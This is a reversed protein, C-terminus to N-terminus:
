STIRKDNDTLRGIRFWRNNTVPLLQLYQLFRLQLLSNSSSKVRISLRIFMTLTLFTMSLNPSFPTNPQQGLPSYDGFNGFTKNAATSPYAAAAINAAFYNDTLLQLQCDLICRASCAASAAFAARFTPYM